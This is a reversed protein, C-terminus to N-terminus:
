VGSRGKATPGGVGQRDSMGALDLDVSGGWASDVARDLRDLELLVAERREPLVSESLEELM